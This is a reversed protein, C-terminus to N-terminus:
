APIETGTVEELQEEEPSEDNTEDHIEGEHLIGQVLAAAAEEFSKYQRLGEFNQM